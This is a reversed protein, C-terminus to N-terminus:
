GFTQELWVVYAASKTLVAFWLSVAAVLAMVIWAPVRLFRMESVPTGAPRARRYLYGSAAAILTAPVAVLLAQLIM